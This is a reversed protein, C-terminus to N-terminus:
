NTLAFILTLIPHFLHPFSSLCFFSDCVEVAVHRADLMDVKNGALAVITNPNGVGFCVPSFM